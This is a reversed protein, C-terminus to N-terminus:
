ASFFTKAIIPNFHSAPVTREAGGEFADAADPGAMVAMGPFEAGRFAVRIVAILHCGTVKVAALKPHLRLLSRTRHTLIGAAGRPQPLRARVQAVGVGHQRPEDVVPWVEVGLCPQGLQRRHVQETGQQELDGALLQGDRGGAPGHGADLGQEAAM